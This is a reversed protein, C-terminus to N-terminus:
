EHRLAEIPDKRAAKLAPFSGFIVGTAIAVLPAVAMIQWVFAPQISTYLRLCVVLLLSILLGLLAGAASIVFAEAMFQRLIQANTAGVAKRLGVEHIRETVSLLMVNMIGVGGVVFAIAAAIITMLTIIRLMTDAGGGRKGVGTIRVDHAGGHSVALSRDIATAVQKTNSADNVKALIQYIGPASGLMTEVTASPLFIADNFNAEVSFPPASFQKFVGAVVFEQGRFKFTQALPANDAFLKHAISSGLVATQNNETNEFFGGYEIKQNVVTSFNPTTAVVLPAEVQYDAKATGSIASLPVVETVGPVKRIVDVDATTLMPTAGVPLGEGTLVGSTGASPRVIVVQKGFRSTQGDIQRKIGEGICVMMVVSVVGIVIGLMTLFSRAKTAKVSELALRCNGTFM